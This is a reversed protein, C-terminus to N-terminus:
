QQRPRRHEIVKRIPDRQKIRGSSHEPGVVHQSAPKGAAAPRSGVEEGRKAAWGPDIMGAIMREWDAPQLVLCQSCRTADGQPHRVIMEQVHLCRRDKCERRGGQLRQGCVTWFACLGSDDHHPIDGSGDKFLLLPCGDMLGALCEGVQRGGFQGVHLHLLPNLQELAVDDM